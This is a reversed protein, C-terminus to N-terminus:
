VLVWYKVLCHRKSPSTKNALAVAEDDSLHIGLAEEHQSTDGSIVQSPSSFRGTDSFDNTDSIDKENM